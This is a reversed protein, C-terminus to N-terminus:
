LKNERRFRTVHDYLPKRGSEPHLGTQILRDVIQRSNWGAAALLTIAKSFHRYSAYRRPQSGKIWTAALAAIDDATQPPPPM